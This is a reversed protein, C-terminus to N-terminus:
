RDKGKGLQLAHIRRTTHVTKKNKFKFWLEKFYKNCQRMQTVSIKTMKEIVHNM